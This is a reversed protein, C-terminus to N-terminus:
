KGGEDWCSFSFVFKEGGKRKEWGNKKRSFISYYNTKYQSLLQMKFHKSIINIKIKKFNIKLM